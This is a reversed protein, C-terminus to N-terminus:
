CRATEQASMPAYGGFGGGVVVEAVGPPAATREAVQATRTTSEAHRVLEGPQWVTAAQCVPHNTHILAFPADPLDATAPPRVSQLRRPKRAAVQRALGGM